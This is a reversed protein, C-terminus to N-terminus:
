ADREQKLKQLLVMVIPIERELIAAAIISIHLSFTDELRRHEIITRQTHTCFLATSSMLSFTESFVILTIRLAIRAAIARDQALSIKM